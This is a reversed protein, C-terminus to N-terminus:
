PVRTRLQVGHWDKMLDALVKNVMRQQKLMGSGRFKDSSIEIGYMSGCGGSIDQVVLEVPEFEAMLRNWIETEAENLYDPKEPRSTPQQSPPTTADPQSATSYFAVGRPQLACPTRLRHVSLTISSAQSLTRCPQATVNAARPASCSGFRLARAARLTRPIM